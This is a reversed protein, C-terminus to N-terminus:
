EQVYIIISNSRRQHDRPPNLFLLAVDRRIYMVLLTISERRCGHMVPIRVRVRKETTETTLCVMPVRRATPRDVVLLCWNSYYYYYYYYDYYFIFFINYIGIYFICLSLLLLIVTGSGLLIRHVQRNYLYHKETAAVARLIIKKNFVTKEEKVKKRHARTKIGILTRSSSFFVGVIRKHIFRRRARPFLASRRDIYIYVQINFYYIGTCM